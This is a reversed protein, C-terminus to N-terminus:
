GVSKASLDYELVRFVTQEWGSLKVRRRHDGGVDRGPTHYM